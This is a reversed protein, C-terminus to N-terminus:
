PFSAKPPLSGFSWLLIMCSHNRNLGFVAQFFFFFYFPKQLCSFLKFFFNLFMSYRWSSCLYNLFFFLLSSAPLWFVLFFFNISALNCLLKFEALSCSFQMFFRFLIAFFIRFVGIMNGRTWFFIQVILAVCTATTRAGTGVLFITFFYIAFM